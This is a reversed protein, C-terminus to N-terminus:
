FEVIISDGNWATDIQFGSSSQKNWNWEQETYSVVGSTDKPSAGNDKDCSVFLLMLLALPIIFRIPKM